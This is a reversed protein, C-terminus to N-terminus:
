YFPLDESKIEDYTHGFKDSDVSTEDSDKERPQNIIEVNEATIYTKYIKKGEQNEYVNTEIRGDISILTGKKAYQSLFEANQNWCQIEIFDTEKTFKRDVALNFNLISKNTQTKRLELDKTIRGTLIVRNIM